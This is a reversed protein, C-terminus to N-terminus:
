ALTSRPKWRPRPRPRPCTAGAAASPGPASASAPSPRAPEQRIPHDLPDNTGLVAIGTGTGRSLSRILDAGDGDPLGLDVIVVDPRYVSLHRLAIEITEARRLRAGSRQCLLRLAESAFRSDEVTLLTLGDLPLVPRPRSEGESLPMLEPQPM